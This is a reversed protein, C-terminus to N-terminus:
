KKAQCSDPESSVVSGSSAQVLFDASVEQRKTQVTPCLIKFQIQWVGLGANNSDTAKILNIISVGRVASGRPLKKEALSLAEVATPAIFTDSAPQEFLVRILVISLLLIAILFTVQHIRAPWTFPAAELDYIGTRMLIPLSAQAFIGAVVAIFFLVWGTALVYRVWPLGTATSTSLGIGFVLAGTALSTSVKTWDLAADLAHQGKEDFASGNPGTV